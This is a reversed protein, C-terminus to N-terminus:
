VIDRGSRQPADSRRQIEGHSNTRGSGSRPDSGREVLDISLDVSLGTM